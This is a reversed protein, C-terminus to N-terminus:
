REVGALAKMAKETDPNFWEPKKSPLENLFSRILRVAEDREAEAKEFAASVLRHSTEVAFLKGNRKEIEKRAASLAAELKKCDDHLILKWEDSTVDLHFSISRDLIRGAEPSYVGLIKKDEDTM